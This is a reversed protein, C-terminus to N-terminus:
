RKVELKNDLFKFVVIYLVIIKGTTKYPRSVQDSVILSSRLSLINSFLTNLLINPGLLSSTVPSHLFSCLSSSLSRNEEGLVKQTIFDLLIPHAPCTARTPSPLPTYLNKTSFGSPFLGSPLGLRLHSSLILVSRWSNDHTRPCSQDPEPIPCTALVQLHPLSGEPEM